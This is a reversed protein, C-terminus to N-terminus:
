YTFGDDCYCNMDGDPCQCDANASCSIQEDTAEDVFLRRMHAPYPNCINLAREPDHDFICKKDESPVTLNSTCIRDGSNGDAVCDTTFTGGNEPDANGEHLHFVDRM